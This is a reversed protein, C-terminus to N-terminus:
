DLPQEAYITVAVVGESAQVAVKDEGFHLELADILGAACWLSSNIDRPTIEVLYDTLGGFRMVRVDVIAKYGDNEYVPTTSQHADKPHTAGHATQIAQMATEISQAVLLYQPHPVLMPRPDFDIVLWHETEEYGVILGDLQNSLAVLAENADWANRHDGDVGQKGQFGLKFLGNDMRQLRLQGRVQGSDYMSCWKEDRDRVGNLIEAIIPKVEAAWCHYLTAQPDDQGTM